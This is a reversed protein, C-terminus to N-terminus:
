RNTNSLEATDSYAPTDARWHMADGQPLELRGSPYPGRLAARIVIISASICFTRSLARLIHMHSATLCISLAYYFTLDTCFNKRPHPPAKKL